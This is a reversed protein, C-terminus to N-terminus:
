LYSMYEIICSPKFCQDNRHGLQQYNRDPNRQRFENVATIDISNLLDRTSWVTRRLTILSVEYISASNENPERVTTESKTLSQDM